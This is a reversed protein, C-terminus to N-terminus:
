TSGLFRETCISISSAQVAWRLATSAVESRLKLRHFEALVFKLELCRHHNGHTVAHACDAVGQARGEVLLGIEGEVHYYDVVVGGVAGGLGDLFKGGVRAKDVDLGFAGVKADAAAPVHGHLVGFASFKGNLEVGVVHIGAGISQSFDHFREVVLVAGHNHAGVHEGVDVAVGDGGPTISWM